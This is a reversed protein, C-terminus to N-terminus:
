MQGFRPSSLGSGPTVDGGKWNGDTLRGSGFNLVARVSGFSLRGVAREGDEGGVRPLVTSGAQDYTMVGVDMKPDKTAHSPKHTFPLTRPVPTSSAM